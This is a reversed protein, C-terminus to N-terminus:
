LFLYCTQMCPKLWTLSSVSNISAETQLCEGLCYKDLSHKQYYELLESIGEFEKDTGAVRYMSQSGEQPIELERHQLLEGDALKTLMSIACFKNYDSFRTLYCSRESEVLKRAAEIRSISGHFSSHNKM